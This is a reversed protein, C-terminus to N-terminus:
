GGRRLHVKLCTDFLAPLRITRGGSVVEIEGPKHYLKDLLEVFDTQLPDGHTGPIKEGSEQIGALMRAFFNPFFCHQETDMKTGPLLPRHTPLDHMMGLPLCCGFHVGLSVPVPACQSSWHASLNSRCRLCSYRSVFPCQQISHNADQNLGICKPCRGVNDRLFSVLMALVPNAAAAPSAETLATETAPDM